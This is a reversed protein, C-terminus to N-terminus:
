SEDLISYSEDLEVLTVKIDSLTINSFTSGSSAVIVDLKGINWRKSPYSGISSEFLM